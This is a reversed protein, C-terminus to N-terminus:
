QVVGRDRQRMRFVLWSLLAAVQLPWFFPVMRPMWPGKWWMLAAMVL